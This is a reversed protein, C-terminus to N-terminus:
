GFFSFRATTEGDQFGRFLNSSFWGQNAVCAWRASNQQKLQLSAGKTECQRRPRWSWWDYVYVGVNNPDGGIPCPEDCVNPCAGNCCGCQDQATGWNTAVCLPTPVVRLYGFNFRDRCIFQGTPTTSNDQPRYCSRLQNLAACDKAATVAQFTTTAVIALFLLVCYRLNM